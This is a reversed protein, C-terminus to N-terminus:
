KVEYCNAKYQEKTLITKIDKILYEITDYEGETCVGIKEDIGEKISKEEDIM